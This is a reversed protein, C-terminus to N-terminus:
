CQEEKTRTSLLRPTLTEYVEKSVNKTGLDSVNDKTKVFDIKVLGQDQLESLFWWRCDIHYTRSSLTQNETM